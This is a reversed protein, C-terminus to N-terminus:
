IFFYIAQNIMYQNELIFERLKIFYMRITESEETIGGMSIREFCQYNLMYIRKNTIKDKIKIYDVNELYQVSTSFTNSLRKRLTSLNINLYNAVDIDKIHFELDDGIKFSKFFTDIFDEDINTYKKVLEIFINNKM